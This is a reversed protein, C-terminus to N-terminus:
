DRKVEEVKIKKEQLISNLRQTLNQNELTLVKAVEDYKHLKSVLETLINSLDFNKLKFEDPKIIEVHCPLHRFSIVFLLTLDTVEVEVEAFSTYLEKTNSEEIQSKKEGEKKYIKEKDLLKPEHIVKELVTVGEVDELKKVHEKLNETVFEPPRGLIEFVFRAKIKEKM